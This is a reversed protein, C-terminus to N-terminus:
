IVDKWNNSDDANGGLYEVLGRTPHKVIAGKVPNNRFQSITVSDVGGKVRQSQLLAQATGTSLAALTKGVGLLSGNEKIYSTIKNMMNNQKKSSSVGKTGSGNGTPPKGEEKLKKLFPSDPEFEKLFDIVGSVADGEGMTSLLGNHISRVDSASFRFQDRGVGGAAKAPKKFSVNGDQDQSFIIADGNKGDLDHGTAAIAQDRLKQTIKTATSFVLKKNAMEIELNKLAELGPNESRIKDMLDSAEKKKGSSLLSRFTPGHLKALEGVKKIDAQAQVRANQSEDIALRRSARLGEEEARENLKDAQSFQLGLRKEDRDSAAQSRLDQRGARLNQEEALRLGTGATLGGTFSKGLGGVQGFLNQSAQQLGGSM